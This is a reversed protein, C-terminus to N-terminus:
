PRGMSAEGAAKWVALADATAAVDHVRIIAAGRAAAVLAAAVSAGLRQEVPRGTIQGLMSKRSLGVLVPAIAALRDIGALLALNHTLTKGFGFGPDIGIREAAIGAALLAERCGALYSAVEGVVDEYVPDSQMTRPEGRMHMAIVAVPQSAEAAAAIAEPDRFGSVDNLMSAGAAVARAMVAPRRTDVSVPVALPVLAELIPELRRWELAEDVPDAGPRTSEAGVDLIDAGEEIMRRAAEIAAAPALHRGGDSFSDTTLNLIGMVQPRDLALRFRGCVLVPARAPGGAQTGGAQTGAAQTGAAQMGAAREAASALPTSPDSRSPRSSM